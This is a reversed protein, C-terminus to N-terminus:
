LVRYSITATATGGRGDHVRYLIQKTGPSSPMIYLEKGNNEIRVPDGGGADIIRLPHHDPDSDNILPLYLINEGVTLDGISDNKAVPPTNPVHAVFRGEPGFYLLRNPSGEGIDGVLADQTASLRIATAVSSVLMSPNHQLYLAAVGAVHPAAMSTGYDQFTATTSTKSWGASLISPDGGPAWVDVCAGWNSIGLKGDTSTSAGVTIARPVRAPSFHCADADENAAAIVVVIGADILNNVAADLSEMWARIQAPSGARSNADITFSLNVVARTGPYNRYHSARIWDLATVVEAATSGGFHQWRDSDHVQTEVWNGNADEYQHLSSCAYIKVSHLTAGRAIGYTRGGIIGAVHTGHSPCSHIERTPRHVTYGAGIRGEFQAHNTQIQHDVVYVHVGRGDLLNGARDMAQYTFSRALPRQDVRDLNWRFTVQAHAPTALVAAVLCAAAAFLRMSKM